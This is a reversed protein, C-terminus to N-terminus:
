EFTWGLRDSLPWYVLCCRGMVLEEEFDGWRRGDFSNLTNDGLVLFHGPRVQFETQETAFLPALSGRKM